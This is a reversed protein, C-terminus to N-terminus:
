LEGGKNNTGWIIDNADDIIDHVPPETSDDALEGDEIETNEITEFYKDQEDLFKQATKADGRYVLDAHITGTNEYGVLLNAQTPNVLLTLTSPLEYTGDENPQVEDKDWGEPTTTTIVRVYTLAEPIFAKETGNEYVVLSVIDGNELKGSLGGAFSSITISIAQKTGDLTRFVDAASDAETSVKSTLLYDGVMLDVAAFKGVVDEKKTIVNSPLNHAGVTVVEVDNESIMHGQTVERTIRVIDIRSDAFKNVLPAAGFTVALALVICVIGVITRNKMDTNNM